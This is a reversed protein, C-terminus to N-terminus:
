FAEGDDDPGDAMAQEAELEAVRAHLADLLSSRPKLGRGRGRKEAEVLRRAQRLDGIHDLEPVIETIKRDILAFDVDDPEDLEAALKAAAGPFDVVDAGQDEDDDTEEPLEPSAMPELGEDFDEVTDGDEIDELDDVEEGAIEWDDLPAEEDVEQGIPEGDVDDPTTRGEARAEEAAQEEELELLRADEQEPTWEAVTEGTEAHLLKEVYVYAAPGEGPADFKEGATPRPAGADFDDPWLERAGDSYLVVVPTADDDLMARVPDLGALEALESPTLAVGSADTVGATGLDPLPERGSKADDATRYANRVASLLRAGPDGQVEFFDVVKHKEAYVLGDDTEEHGATKVKLEIVAVVRDGISHPRSIRNGAGNVSTKMGVPQRGHYEPLELSPLSPQHVVDVDTPDRPDEAV